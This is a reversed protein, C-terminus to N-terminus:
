FELALGDRLIAAARASFDDGDRDHTTGDHLVLPPALRLPTRVGKRARVIVRKADRGTRAVLPLIEIGGAPGDLAALIGALREARQIIVVHGGPRTRALAAEIWDAMDLATRRARDRGPNPSPTRDEAYWPPNLMVADFVRARLAAPMASADGEHIELAMENAAANERGLAAYFRQIELGHLDLGEVRCGLCLSASGVGCGLDLVSQGPVVPVAAAM